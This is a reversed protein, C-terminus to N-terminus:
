PNDGLDIIIFTRPPSTADSGGILTLTSGDAREDAEVTFDDTALTSPAVWWVSGDINWRTMTASVNTLRCFTGVYAGNVNLNLQWAGTAASLEAIGGIRVEYLHGAIVSVNNNAMDTTADASHAGNNSAYTTRAVVGWPLDGLSHVHDSRASTVAAGEGPTNTRTLAAATGCAFGHTHNNRAFTTGNGEAAVDDPAIAGPTGAAIAVTIALAFLGAIFRRLWNM